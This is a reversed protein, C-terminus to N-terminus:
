HTKAKSGSKGGLLMLGGVLGLNKLAGIQQHMKEEDKALFPNHMIATIVLLAPILISQALAEAGLVLLLAGGLEAVGAAYILWTVQESPLTIGLPALGAHALYGASQETTTFKGIGGAIFIAALLVRAVIRSIGM